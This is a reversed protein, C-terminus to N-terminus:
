EHFGVGLDNDDAAADDARGDEVVECLRAPGVDHQELAGLVGGTRCPMGGAPHVGEVTVGVDSSELLVRDVEVPLDEVLGAHVCRHVDGTADHKGVRGLPHIPELHAM